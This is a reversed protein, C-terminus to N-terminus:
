DQNFDAAPNKLHVQKSENINSRPAARVQFENLHLNGNDQRGPGKHPLSDDTLVEVRVGTSGQLETHASLSTIDTEPRKGGSLVSHDPLKTLTAGNASKMTAPDLVTWHIVGAAVQKEWAAAEAQVAATLLSPDATGRLAQLRAKEDALQKRKASLK